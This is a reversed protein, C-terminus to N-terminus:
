LILQMIEYEQQHERNCMCPHAKKTLDVLIRVHQYGVSDHQLSQLTVIM